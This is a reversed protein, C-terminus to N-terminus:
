KQSVKSYWFHKLRHSKLSIKGIDQFLNESMFRQSCRHNLNPYGVKLFVAFYRIEYCFCFFHADIANFIMFLRFFSFDRLDKIQTKSKTHDDPAFKLLNSCFNFTSVCKAYFIVFHWNQGNKKLSIKGFDCVEFHLLKQVFILKSM